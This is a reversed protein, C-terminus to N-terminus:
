GRNGDGPSWVCESWSRNSLRVAVAERLQRHDNPEEGPQGPIKPRVDFRRRLAASEFPEFVLPPVCHLEQTREATQEDIVVRRPRNEFLANGPRGLESHIWLPPKLPM